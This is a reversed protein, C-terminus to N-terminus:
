FLRQTARSMFFGHGLGNTCTLGVKEMRCLIGGARFTEGYPLVPADPAAGVDGVCGRMAKGTEYLFLVGGWDLDCGEPPETWVPRYASIDCRLEVEDMAPGPPSAICRINRAPSQFQQAALPAAGPGMMLALALLLVPRPTEPM